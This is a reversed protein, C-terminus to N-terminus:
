NNKLKEKGMAIIEDDTPLGYIKTGPDNGKSQWKSFSMGCVTLNGSPVYVSNNYIQMGDTGDPLDCNSTYSNDDRLVISNNVFWDNAGSTCCQLFWNGTYAYVNSFHRNDHGGFDSKLGYDGYVFFNDYTKYYSSGDDTDIASQSQYTGIIFNNHILNFAPIISDGNGAVNTIYPVRDWSNWPGHDGSERCTNLLLNGIM